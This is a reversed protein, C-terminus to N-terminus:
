LLHDYEITPLKNKRRHTILYCSEQLLMVEATIHRKAKILTFYLLFKVKIISRVWKHLEIVHFLVQILVQNVTLIKVQVAIFFHIEITKHV